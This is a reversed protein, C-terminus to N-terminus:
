KKFFPNKVDLLSIGNRSNEKEKGKSKINEEM